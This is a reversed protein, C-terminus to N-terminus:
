DNMIIKGYWEVQLSQMQFLTSLYDLSPDIGLM